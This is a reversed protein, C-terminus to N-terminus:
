PLPRPEPGAVCWFAAMLGPNVALVNMPTRNPQAGRTQLFHETRSGDKLSVMYGSLTEQWGASNSTLRQDRDAIWVQLASNPLSFPHGIPLAPSSTTGDLLSGLEAGDSLRWRRGARYFQCVRAVNDASVLTAAVQRQWVLLTEKDLVGFGGLIVEFRPNPPPPPERQPQPTPLVSREQVEGSDDPTAKEEQVTTPPAPPSTPEDALAFSSWAFGIAFVVVTSRILGVVAAQRRM